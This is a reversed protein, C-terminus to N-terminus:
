LIHALYSKKIGNEDVLVPITKHKEIINKDIKNTNYFHIKNNNYSIILNINKQDMEPSDLFNKNSLIILFDNESQIITYEKIWINKM